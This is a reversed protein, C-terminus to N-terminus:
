VAKVVIRNGSVEIVAVDTGPEIFEGRSVVDIKEGDLEVSGAPRLETVTKGTKGLYKSRDAGGTYGLAKDAADKLMLSSPLKGKSVLIISVVALIVVVIAVVGTMLLGQALTKATLFIDAVLCALGLIGAVGFGPSCMEVILLIIGVCFVIISLASMSQILALLEM